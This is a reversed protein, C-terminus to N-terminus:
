RLALPLHAPRLSYDQAHDRLYKQAKNNADGTAVRDAFAAVLRASIFLDLGAHLPCEDHSIGIQRLQQLGANKRVLDKVSMCLVKTAMRVAGVYILVM